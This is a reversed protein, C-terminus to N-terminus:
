SATGGIAEPPPGDAGAQGSDDARRAIRTARRERLWGATIMLVAGLGTLGAFCVVVGGVFPVFLALCLALAGLATEGVLGGHAHGLKAALWRGTFAAVAAFGAAITLPVVFFLWPVLVIIGVITIALAISVVPVGVILGAAGWGLAPLPQRGIVDRAATLRRPMLAALVVAVAVLFITRVVGGFFGLIGFAVFGDRHLRVSGLGHWVRGVVTAGPDRIIKGGVVTLAMDHSAMNSGVVATRALTVTGDIVILQDTVTGAVTVDAGFVAVTRAVQDPGIYVDKGLEVITGREHVAGTVPATAAPAASAALAATAPAPAATTPTAAKAANPLAWAVWAVLLAVVALRGATTRTFIRRGM